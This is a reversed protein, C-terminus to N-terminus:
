GEEETVLTAGLQKRRKRQGIGGTTKQKKKEKLESKGKPGGM